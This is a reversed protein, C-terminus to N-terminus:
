SSGTKKEEHGGFRRRLTAILKAAVTSRVANDYQSHERFELAKAIAEVPVHEERGTEVTLKGGGTTAIYGEDSLFDPEEVFISEIMDLMFSRLPSGRQWVYAVDVLNLQYPSKGLVGFGEAFSQMIGYEIGIHVMKVFHGAGGPGFYSYGGGPKVLSDLLPQIFEYGDNSGGVMLCFGDEVSAKDGAIGIGLYRFGKRIFTDYRRQTDKYNANAGDIIIDGQEAINVIESVADETERGEPRMMWFVRPRSLKERMGEISFALSLRQNLLYESQSVKLQEYIDKSHNWGVVEHGEKLIKELLIGGLKELGLVAVRM